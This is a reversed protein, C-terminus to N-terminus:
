RAKEAQLAYDITGEPDAEALAERSFEFVPYVCFGSALHQGTQRALGNGELFSGMTPSNNLDIAAFFPPLKEINVTACAYEDDFRDSEPDKAMLLVALNGNQQYAHVGLQVDISGEFPHYSYTKM